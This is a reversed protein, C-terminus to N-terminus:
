SIEENTGDWSFVVHHWNGDYLDPGINTRASLTPYDVNVGVWGSSTGPTGTKYNLALRFQKPDHTGFIMQRTTSTSKFWASVTGNTPVDKLGTDIYEEGGFELAEDIVGATI